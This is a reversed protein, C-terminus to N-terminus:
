NFDRVIIFRYYAEFRCIGYSVYDMADSEDECELDEDNLAVEVMKSESYVLVNEGKNCTFGIIAKDFGVLREKIDLEEIQEELDELMETIEM